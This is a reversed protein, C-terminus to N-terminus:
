SVETCAAPPIKIGKTTSDKPRQDGLLKAKRVVLLLPAEVARVKQWKISCNDMHRHLYLECINSWCRLKSGPLGNHSNPPQDRGNIQYMSRATKAVSLQQTM